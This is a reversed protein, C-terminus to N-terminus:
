PADEEVAIVRAPAGDSDPIRIPLGVVQNRARRLAGMNCLYEFM